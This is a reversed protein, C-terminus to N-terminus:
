TQQLDEIEFHFLFVFNNTKGILLLSDGTIMSTTNKMEIRAYPFNDRPNNKAAWLKYSATYYLSVLFIVAFVIIYMNIKAAELRSGIYPIIIWFLFIFVALARIFFYGQSKSFKKMSFMLPGFLLLIVVCSVILTISMIKIEMGKKEKIRKENKDFLKDILRQLPLSLTVIFLLVSATTLLLMPIHGLFITIIESFSIYTFIDVGFSAYYLYEFWIAGILFLLSFFSVYKPLKEIM